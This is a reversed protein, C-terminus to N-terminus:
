PSVDAWLDETLRMIEARQEPTLAIRPSNAENTDCNEVVLVSADRSLTHTHWVGRRINYVTFPEMDVAHIFTVRETGEGIFLICRGRLLVFVEDTKDHRQMTTLREPLLEDIANLMAVRWAGYDVLPAYGPADYAHVDLLAPPMNLSVSSSVAIM